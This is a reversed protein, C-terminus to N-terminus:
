RPALVTVKEIILLISPIKMENCYKVIRSIQEVTRPKLVVTPLFRLNETQDYSYGTLNEEDYFCSDKGLLETFYHIYEAM